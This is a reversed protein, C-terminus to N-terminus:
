RWPWHKMANKVNNDNATQARKWKVFEDLVSGLDNGFCHFVMDLFSKNTIHIKEYKPIYKPLKPCGKPSKRALISNLLSAMM